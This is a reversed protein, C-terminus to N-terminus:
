PFPIRPDGYRALRPKLQRRSKQTSATSPIHPPPTAAAAGGSRTGTMRPIPAVRTVTGEAPPEVLTETLTFFAVAQEQLPAHAPEAIRGASRDVAHTAEVNRSGAFGLEAGRVHITRTVALPESPLDVDACTAILCGPLGGGGTSAVVVGDVGGGLRV